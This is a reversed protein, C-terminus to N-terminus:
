TLALPAFWEQQSLLAALRDEELFTQHAWMCMRVYKWSSPLGKCAWCSDPLNSLIYAVCDTPKKISEKTMM